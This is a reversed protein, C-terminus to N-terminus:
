YFLCTYEEVSCSNFSSLNMYQKWGQFAPILMAIAAVTFASLMTRMILYSAGFLGVAFIFYVIMNTRSKNKLEDVYGYTGIPMKKNEM